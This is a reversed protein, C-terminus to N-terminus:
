PLSTTYYYQALYKSFSIVGNSYKEKTADPFLQAISDPFRNDHYM